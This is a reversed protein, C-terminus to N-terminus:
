VHARGIEDFDIKYKDESNNDVNVTQSLKSILETNDKNEKFWYFIKTGSFCMLFMFVLFMITKIINRSSEKKKEKLRKGKM